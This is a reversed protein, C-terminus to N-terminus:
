DAWYASDEYVIITVQLADYRLVMTSLVDVIDIPDGLLPRLAVRVTSAMKNDPIAPYDFMGDRPGIVVYLKDDDDDNVFSADPCKRGRRMCEWHLVEVIADVVLDRYNLWEAPVVTADYWDAKRIEGDAWAHLRDWDTVWVHGGQAMDLGISRLADFTTLLPRRKGETLIDNM